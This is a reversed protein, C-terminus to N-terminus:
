RRHLLFGSGQLVETSGYTKMYQRERFHYRVFPKLILSMTAVSFETRDSFLSTGILRSIMTAVM